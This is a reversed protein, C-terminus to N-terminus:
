REDSLATRGKYLIDQLGRVLEKTRRARRFYEDVVSANADKQCRAGMEELLMASEELATVTQARTEDSSQQISSLLADETYAHGTHCRFHTIAGENIRGLVRSVGPM